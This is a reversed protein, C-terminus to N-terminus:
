DQVSYSAVIDANGTGFSTLVLIATKNAAISVPKQGIFVWGSTFALTRDTGDAIVRLTASTGEAIGAASFTTNSDLTTKKLIESSMNIAVVGSSPTITAIESKFGKGLYFTDSLYLDKWSFPSSGLDLAGDQLPILSEGLLMNPVNLKTAM